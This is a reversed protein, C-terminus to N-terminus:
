RYRQTSRQTARKAQVIHTTVRAGDIPLGAPTPNFALSFGYATGDPSTVAVDSQRNGSLNAAPYRVVSGGGNAGSVGLWLNGDGDFAIAGFLIGANDQALSEGLSVVPAPTANSALTGLQSASFELVSDAHQTTYVTDGPEQVQSSVSVSVWLNGHADFAVYDYTASGTAASDTFAHAPTPPTSGTTAAALQAPTYELVSTSNAVWLNGSADFALGGPEHADSITYKPTTGGTSNAGLQPAAVGYIATTTSIWLTAHSDFALAGIGGSTILSVTVAPTAPSCAGALQNTTWMILTNAGSYPRATWLNGNADFAEPGLGGSISSHYGPCSDAPTPSGSQALQATSLLYQGDVWLGIASATIQCSVVFNATVAGLVTLGSYAVPAPTSCDAPLGSVAVIGSSPSAPVSADSYSGNANSTVTPLARGGTPTVTVIAGSITGGATTSIVGDITGTTIGCQISIDVTITGLSPPMSYGSGGTECGSPVGSVAVSGPGFPIGTITYQGNRNSVASQGSGLQPRDTVTVGGVAGTNSNVTGSITGSTAATLNPNNYCALPALAILTGLLRPRM